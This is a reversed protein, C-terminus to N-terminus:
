GDTKLLRELKEDETLGDAAKGVRLMAELKGVRENLAEQQQTQYHHITESTEGYVKKFGVTHPAREILTLYELPTLADISL